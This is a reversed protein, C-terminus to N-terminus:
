NDFEFIWDINLIMFYTSHISWNAFYLCNICNDTCYWYMCYILRTCDIQVTCTSTSTSTSHITPGNDFYSCVVISVGMISESSDGVSVAVAQCRRERNSNSSVIACFVYIMCIVCSNIGNRIQNKLPLLLYHPRHLTHTREFWLYILWCCIFQSSSSFEVIFCCYLWPCDM